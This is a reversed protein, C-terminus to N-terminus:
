PEDPQEPKLILRNYRNLEDRLNSGRYTIWQVPSNEYDLPQILSLHHVISRGFNEIKDRGNINSLFIRRAVSTADDLLDTHSRLLHHREEYHHLQLQKTIVHEPYHRQKLYKIFNNKAQRHHSEESSNRILRQNEGNIWNFIYKNPFYTAPDTYLHKNMPKDFPAIDFRLNYEEDVIRVVLDLMVAQQGHLGHDITINISNCNRYLKRLSKDFHEQLEIAIVRSYRFTGEYRPVKFITFGDDIYRFIQFTYELRTLYDYEEFHEDDADLFVGDIPVGLHVNTKEVCCAFLRAITPAMPTGMALGKRQAYVVNGHSVFAYNNVWRALGLLALVRGAAETSQTDCFHNIITQTAENFDINGYMNIVDYACIFYDYNPEFPYTELARILTPTDPLDHSFDDIFERLEKDVYKSITHTIWPFSPVIPRVGIPTKHIKPLLYMVPVKFGKTKTQKEIKNILDIVGPLRNLCNKVHWRIEQLMSEYSVRSRDVVHYDPSAFIYELQTKYWTSDMVTLGLNKDAPGIILKNNQM